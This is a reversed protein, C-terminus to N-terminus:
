SLLRALGSTTGLLADGNQYLWYAAIATLCCCCLLVVAVVVGIIINRQNNAPAPSPTGSDM